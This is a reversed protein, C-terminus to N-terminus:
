AIEMNSMVLHDHFGIEIGFDVLNLIDQSFVVHWEIPEIDCEVYQDVFGVEEM